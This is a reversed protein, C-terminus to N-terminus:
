LGVKSPSIAGHNLARVAKVSSGLRVDPLEFSWNGPIWCRKTDVPMWMCISFICLCVHICM